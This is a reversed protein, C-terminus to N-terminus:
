PRSSPTSSRARSASPPSSRPTTIGAATTSRSSPSVAEVLRRALLARQGFGNRGYSDRVSDPERDIEFAKQAAPSHILSVPQEFNEDAGLVPDAESLHAIAKAHPLRATAM